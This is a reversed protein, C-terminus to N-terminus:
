GTRRSGGIQRPGRPDARGARPQLARGGGPAARPWRRRVLLGRRGPLHGPSHEAMAPLVVTDSRGQTVLLPVGLDRLV